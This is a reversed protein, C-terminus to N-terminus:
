IVNPSKRSEQRSFRELIGDVTRELAGQNQEVTNQAREGLLRRKDPNELLDRVTTELEKANKVQILAEKELFCPLIAKFTEMKPGTIIARGHVAPEIPNQGGGEVFSQGIFIVDAERYFHRLEGTTNVILCHPATSLDPPSAPLETRLIVEM